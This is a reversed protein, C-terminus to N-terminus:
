SSRDAVVPVLEQGRGAPVRRASSKNALMILDDVSKLLKFPDIPKVFYAQAGADLAIRKEEEYAGGSCFVIPIDQDIARVKRCLDLGEGDPLRSDFMFLNFNESEVLKTAASITSATTVSYEGATLLLVLLDRTDPHDEVV